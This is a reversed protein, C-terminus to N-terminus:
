TLKSKMWKVKIFLFLFRVASLGVFVGLWWRYYDRWLSQIMGYVNIANDSANGVNAETPPRLSEEYFNGAVTAAIFMIFLYHLWTTLERKIDNSM